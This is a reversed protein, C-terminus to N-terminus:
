LEENPRRSASSDSRGTVVVAIGTPIALILGVWFLMTFAWQIEDGVFVTLGSLVFAIGATSSAGIFVWRALRNTTSETPRM